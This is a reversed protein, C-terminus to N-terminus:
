GFNSRVYKHRKIEAESGEGKKKIFMKRYNEPEEFLLEYDEENTAEDRISMIESLLWKMM